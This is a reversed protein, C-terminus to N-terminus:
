PIKEAYAVRKLNHINQCVGKFEDRSFDAEVISKLYEYNSYSSDYMHGFQLWAKARKEVRKQKAIEMYEQQKLRGYIRNFGDLVENIFQSVYVRKTDSQIQFFNYFSPLQLKDTILKCTKQNDMTFKLLDISYLDFGYLLVRHASLYLRTEQSMLNFKNIFDDVSDYTIKFMRKSIRNLIQLYSPNDSLSARLITDMISKEVYDINHVKRIDKMELGKDNLKANKGDSSVQYFLKRDLYPICAYRIYNTKPLSNDPMPIKGSLLQDPTCLQLAYAGYGNSYFQKPLANDISMDLCRLQSIYEVCDLPEMGKKERIQNCYILFRNNPQENIADILSSNQSTYKAVYQIAGKASDVISKDYQKYYKRDFPNTFQTYGSYWSQACAECFERPSINFFCSFLAHAHPREYTEGFEWTWYVNFTCRKVETEGYKRVITKIPYGRRKLNEKLRKIFNLREENSFVKLGLLTPCHAEDFTFTNFFMHGDSNDKVDLFEYYSRVCHNNIRQQLCEPCHGCTVYIYKRDRSNDIPNFDNQEPTRDKRFKPNRLYYGSTCM